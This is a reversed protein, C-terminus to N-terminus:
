NCCCEMQEPLHSGLGQWQGNTGPPRTALIWHEWQQLRVEIEPWSGFDQKLGSCALVVQSWVLKCKTFEIFYMSIGQRYKLCCTVTVIGSKFWLKCEGICFHEQFVFWIKWCLQPIISLYFQLVNWTYLPIIQNLINITFPVWKHTPFYKNHKIEM